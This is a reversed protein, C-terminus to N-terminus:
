LIFLLLLLLKYVINITNTEPPHYLAETICINM